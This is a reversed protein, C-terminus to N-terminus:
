ILALISLVCCLLVYLNYPLKSSVILWMILLHLLNACFSYLVLCSQTTLPIWLSNHLFNFNSWLFLNYICLGTPTRPFSVFLSWYSKLMCVSWRIEALRGSRIIILFLFLVQLITSKATRVSWLNFNFSFSFFSLYRSIALSYFFSHFRFTFNIGITIPAKTVTLSPNNFSSSSKSILSCTSVM